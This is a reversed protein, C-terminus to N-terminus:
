NSEAKLRKVKQSYFPLFNTPKRCIFVPMGTERAYPNKLRDFETVEGFHTKIEETKDNVYILTTIKLSDPAWYLFNDSFSIPTPIKQKGYFIAASAEGYNQCFVACNKQEEPTLSLYARDIIDALEQWGIMDAYDQPLPHVEGTEWKLFGDGIFPKMKQGYAIMDKHSLLPLALPMLPLSLIFLWGVIGIRVVQHAYKELGYGGVAFLMPYLGLTYYAKGSGIIFLGITIIFLWGIPRLYKEKKAFFCVALGTIWIPAAHFNMLLQNALFDGINVHILQNERLEAMHSIVPFNHQGQWFLNPMIIVLGVFLGIFFNKNYILRRQRSLLLAGICAAAMFVINYKNLFGIGFIISLPLWQKESASTNRILRLFFFAALTWFLIDFVVPQFLWATRNYAVSLAVASCALFVAWLKGGLDETMKGVVIILIAGALGSFFKVGFAVDTFFISALKALVGIFPPVSAYGWDLHQGLAIYLLEDRHLEYNKAVVLHVTFTLLAFFAIIHQTKM